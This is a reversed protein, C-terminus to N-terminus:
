NRITQSWTDFSTIVAGRPRGTAPDAFVMGLPDAFVMGLPSVGPVALEGALRKYPLPKPKWYCRCVHHAPINYTAQEETKGEQSECIWCVREDEMTKWRRETLLHGYDRDFADDADAVSVQVETRVLRNMVDNVQYGDARAGDIRAGIDDPDDGAIGGVALGAFAAVEWTKLFSDLRQEGSDEPEGTDPDTNPTGATPEEWWAEGVKKGIKRHVGGAPQYAAPDRKPKVDVNPPTTSDIVWHDFLFQQEFAQRKATNLIDAAENRFAKLEADFRDQIRQKAQETSFPNDGAGTQAWVGRAFASLDAHVTEWRDLLMKVAPGEVRDRMMKKGAFALREAVDDQNLQRPV